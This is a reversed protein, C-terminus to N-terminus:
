ITGPMPSVGIAYNRAWGPLLNTIEKLLDLYSEHNRLTVNLEEIISHSASPPPSFYVNKCLRNRAIKLLRFCNLM